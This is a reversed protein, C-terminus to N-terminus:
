PIGGAFLINPSRSLVSGVDSAGEAARVRESFSIRFVICMADRMLHERVPDGAYSDRPLFSAEEMDWLLLEGQDAPFVDSGNGHM